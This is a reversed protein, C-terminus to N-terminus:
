KKGDITQIRPTYNTDSDKSENTKQECPRNNTTFPESINEGFNEKPSAGLLKFFFNRINIEENRQTIRCHIKLISLM